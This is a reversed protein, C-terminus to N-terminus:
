VDDATIETIKGDGDRKVKAVRKGKEIVNVPAPRVTVENTIPTPSVNVVPPPQQPVNVTVTGQEPMQTTLTIPAM